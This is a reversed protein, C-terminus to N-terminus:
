RLKFACGAPACTRGVIGVDIGIEFLNPAYMCGLPPGVSCAFGLSAPGPGPDTMDLQCATKMRISVVQAAACTRLGSKM